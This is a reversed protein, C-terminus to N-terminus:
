KLLAIISAILAIVALIKMQRALRRNESGTIADHMARYLADVEEFLRQNGLLGSWWQFLEQGFPM